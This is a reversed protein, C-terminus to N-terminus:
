PSTTSSSDPQPVQPTRFPNTFVGRDQEAIPQAIKKKTTKVIIFSDSIEVIQSRHILLGTDTLSKFIGREVGLQQIEFGETDVTYSSVKGLKRGDEERVSMGLLSFRLELLADLKIIDGSAVFEDANNIIIGLNSFERIDATLLFQQPTNNQTTIEYAAIRLTSPNIIAKKTIAVKGGVHISMIPANLLRLGNILM